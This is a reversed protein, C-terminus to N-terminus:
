RCIILETDKLNIKQIQRRRITVIHIRYCIFYHFSTFFILTGALLTFILPKRYVNGVLSSSTYIINCLHLILLQYWAIYVM